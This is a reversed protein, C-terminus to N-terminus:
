RQLTMLQQFQRYLPQSKPYPEREMAVPRARARRFATPEIMGLARGKM